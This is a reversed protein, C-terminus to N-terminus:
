QKFLIHFSAVSVGQTLSPTTMDMDQFAGLVTYNEMFAVNYVCTLCSLHGLTGRRVLSFSRYVIHLSTKCGSSPVMVM